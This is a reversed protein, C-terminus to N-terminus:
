IVNAEHVPQSEKFRGVRLPTIDISARGDVIQEAVMKSAIPGQMFGHGSFGSVVYFNRLGPILGLVASHDPSQDYLGAWGRMIELPELAPVRPLAKELLVELWEWTLTTNFGPPEDDDEMGLMLGGSERRMYFGTEMDITMPITGPIGHEGAPFPKTIFLMRRVPEVPVEADALRALEGSWAGAANVFVGAEYEADDTKVSLIRDGQRRISRVGSKFCIRVGMEKCRDWLGQIVGHPDAFGDTQCFTGYVLDDTHVYPALKAIEAPSLERVDMGLSRQLKVNRQFDRKMAETKVLFLYGAQVFEPEGGIERKFGEYFRIGEIMLRVNIEASFQARIGGASRETSGTGLMIDRELLYIPSVGKKALWYAMSIGVIGGGIIVVEGRQTGM